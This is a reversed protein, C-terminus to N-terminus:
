VEALKVAAYFRGAGDTYLPPSTYVCTRTVGDTPWFFDFSADKNAQYHAELQDKEAKTLWHNLDFEMKETTFFRQMKLAGNSARRQVLGADRRPASSNLLTLRPYAM